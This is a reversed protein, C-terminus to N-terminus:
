GIKEFRQAQTNSWFHTEDVGSVYYALPAHFMGSERVDVELAPCYGASSRDRLRIAYATEGYYGLWPIVVRCTDGSIILLEQLEGDYWVGQFAELDSPWQESEEYVYPVGKDAAWEMLAEAAGPEATEVCAILEELPDTEGQAPVMPCLSLVVAMVFAITKM